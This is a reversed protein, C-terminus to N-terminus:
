PNEGHHLRYHFTIEGWQDGTAGQALPEFRWDMLAATANRDFDQYGSTKQVMVNKKIAGDGQVVFYLRVSGEIAERKAWEPYRPTSYALVRRDAVPGVLTVGALQRGAPPQEEKVPTVAAPPTSVAVPASPRKQPSRNLPLPKPRTRRARTLELAPTSPAAPSALPPLGAAPLAVAAPGLSAREASERQLSALRQNLRDRRERRSQPRPEVEARHPDRLFHVPPEEPARSVPEASPSADARTPPSSSALEVEEPDIWTIEALVERGPAIESYLSLFLIVALHVLASGIMAKRTRSRIADMELNVPTAVPTSM